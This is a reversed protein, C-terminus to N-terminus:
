NRGGMGQGTGEDKKSCGTVRHSGADMVALRPAPPSAAACTRAGTLPHPSGAGTARFPHPAVLDFPLNTIEPWRERERVM